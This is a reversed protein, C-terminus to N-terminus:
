LNHAKIYRYITSKAVGLKEAVVIPNRQFKNLYHIIIKVTYSDLTGNEEYFGPSDYLPDFTIDTDHIKGNECMIVAKEIIAKLERINGPFSYSLLKCSADDLIFVPPIKNELCYTNAFHQALKIIDKGRERLPPLHIPLGMLRYYLDARFTGKNVEETLNAHTATIVRVDVKILDNGGLRKVEREQLVRLFRKQTNLDMESIEDLFLTGKNAEEFVGAKRAMSGTFAGKEYGFIESEVLEKPIAGVNVAIFPKSKRVSNFHISKAVLEKGTGTEGTIAVNIQSASAKEILKFVERLGDSSGVMLNSQDYKHTVEDLLRENESRLSQNERFLRISNWLRSTTEEGKVIYDFAGEQMLKIAIEVDEQGSIIIVGISSNEKKIKKLLQDGLMDPLAFDVTILEPKKHLNDLCEKGTLFKEVRFDPNKCLHYELLRAYVPDDEVVFIKFREM